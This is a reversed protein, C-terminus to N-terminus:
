AEGGRYSRGIVLLARDLTSPAGCNGSIGVLTRYIFDMAVDLLEPERQLTRPVLRPKLTTAESRLVALALRAGLDDVMEEDLCTELKAFVSDFNAILRRARVQQSLRPATPDRSLVFRSVELLEQSQELNGDQALAAQLYRIASRYDKLQFAAVGAEAQAAANKDDVGIAKDFHELAQQPDGAAMM